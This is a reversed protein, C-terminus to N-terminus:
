KRSWLSRSRAERLKEFEEQLEAVKDALESPADLTARKQEALQVLHPVMVNAAVHERRELMKEKLLLFVKYWKEPSDKQVGDYGV